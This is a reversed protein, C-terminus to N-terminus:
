ADGREIMTSRCRAVRRGEGDVLETEITLFGIAGRRRISAIRARAVLSEGVVIPREWEYEEDGHLVRSFDLDLEPDAVITPFLSFEAATLFTPPVGGAGDPFVARFAAVRDPDVVFPVEEYRKGEVAANV